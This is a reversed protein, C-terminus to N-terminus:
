QTSNLAYKPLSLTTLEKKYGPWTATATCLSYTACAQDMLQQGIDLAQQDFEYTRWAHPPKNEVAIIIHREAGTLFKYFAAQMHYLLANADASFSWESADSTTKLDITVRKGGITTVLDPRGKIMVGTPHQRVEPVEVRWQGHDIGLTGIAQEASSAIGDIIDFEAQPIYEQGDSLPNAAVWEKWEKTRKDMDPAPVFEKNFRAPELFATHARTGLLMARSPERVAALSAVYHAPSKLLEKAGSYNLAQVARYEDITM